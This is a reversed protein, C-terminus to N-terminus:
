KKKRTNRTKKSEMKPEAANEVIKSDSITSETAKSEKKNKSRTVKPQSPEKESLSTIIPETDMETTKRQQIKERETLLNTKVIKEANKRQKETETFAINPTEEATYNCSNDFLHIVLKEIDEDEEEEKWDRKIKKYFLIIQRIVQNLSTGSELLIDYPFTVGEPVPISSNGVRASYIRLVVKGDSYHGPFFIKEKETFGSYIKNCRPKELGYNETFSYLDGLESFSTNNLFPAYLREKETKSNQLNGTIHKKSHELLAETLRSTTIESPKTRLTNDIKINLDPSSITCVGSVGLGFINTQVNRYVKFLANEDNPRRIVCQGGHAWVAALIEMDKGLRIKGMKETIVDMDIDRDEQIKDKRQSKQTNRYSEMRTSRKKTLRPKVAKISVRKEM